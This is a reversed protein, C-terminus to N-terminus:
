TDSGKTSKATTKERTIFDEINFTGEALEMTVIQLTFLALFHSGKTAEFDWFYYCDLDDGEVQGKSYHLPACLRLHNQPNKRDTFTMKIRRKQEIGQTFIDHDSHVSIVM